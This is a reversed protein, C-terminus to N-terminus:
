SGAPTNRYIVFIKPFFKKLIHLTQRLESEFKRDMAYHAGRNLVLVKIDWEQLRQVWPCFRGTGMNVASTSLHDNLLYRVQSRHKLTKSRRKQRKSEQNLYQHCFTIPADPYYTYVKPLPGECGDAEGMVPTDNESVFVVLNLSHFGFLFRM